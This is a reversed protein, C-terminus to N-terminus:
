IRGADEYTGPEVTQDIQVTAAGSLRIVPPTTDPIMVVEEEQLCVTFWPCLLSFCSKLFYIFAVFFSGFSLV